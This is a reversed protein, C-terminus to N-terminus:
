AAAIAPAVSLALRLLLTRRVTRLLLGPALTFGATIARTFRLFLTRRALRPRWTLRTRGIRRHCGNGLNLGAGAGRGLMAFATAAAAVTATAPAVAALAVPMAFLTSALAGCSLLSRRGAIHM